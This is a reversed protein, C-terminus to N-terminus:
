QKILFPARDKGAIWAPPKGKGTWTSGSQPDKYKPEGPKKPTGAKGKTKAKKEPSYNPFTLQEPRIGYEAIKANIEAVAGALEEKKAAEALERYENAKAILEAYTEKKANQTSM